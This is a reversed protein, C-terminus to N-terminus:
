KRRRRGRMKDGTARPRGMCGFKYTGREVARLIRHGLPTIVVARAKVGSVRKATHSHTAM